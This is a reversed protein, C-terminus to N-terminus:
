GTDLEFLTGSYCEKIQEVSRNLLQTIMSLTRGFVRSLALYYDERAERTKNMLSIALSIVSAIIVGGQRGRKFSYMIKGESQLQKLVHDLSREPIGITKSIDKKKVRLYPNTASTEQQIYALFDERWESFHSRQRKDRSKKFKYWGQRIFLDKSTLSADVWTQCLIRIFDRSAAEYKGSYASAITKKLENIKLPIALEDNYDTLEELCASQDIGSAYNALALTFVVNNRGMLSKEGRIKSTNKLLHYWPEDIQKQGETGSLVFLNPRKLYEFDDQQMSWSLWEAFTYINNKDFYEVNDLRPMRAIGFHNCTMDVPLNDKKFHERINQSIMKAVNVVKFGTSSTVYAADQLVFYAQYGKETKLILTPMFGLDLSSVLIDSFNISEKQTKVDFDIYFTNIQRLNNESHGQTVRPKIQTYTGYRYINPTWHSFLTKNEEIAELSTLVLGRGSVMNKKNRYGFISGKQEEFSADQYKSNKFKFNRLGDKLIMRYILTIDMILEKRLFIVFPILKKTSVKWM